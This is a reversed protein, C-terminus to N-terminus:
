LFTSGASDCLVVEYVSDLRLWGNFYEGQAQRLPGRAKAGSFSNVAWGSAGASASAPAEPQATFSPILLRRPRPAIQDVVVFSM